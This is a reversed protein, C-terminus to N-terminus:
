EGQDEMFIHSVREEMEGPLGEAVFADIAHVFYQGERILVTITGPTLIISNAFTVLSFDKRLKTKFRIIHPDIYDKMRPHLALKAIHINSLVIQYFLWLLYKTFRIAIIINKTSLKKDEFILDHSIYTIFICSIIGLSLHWADFVGSWIVWFTFLILFTVVYKLM